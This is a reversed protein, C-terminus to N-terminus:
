KAILYQRSMGEEFRYIIKVREFRKMLGLFCRKEKLSFNEIYQSVPLQQDETRRIQNLIDNEYSHILGNVKRVELNQNFGDILSYHNYKM